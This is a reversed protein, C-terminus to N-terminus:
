VLLKTSTEIKRRSKGLKEHLKWGQLYRSDRCYLQQKTCCGGETSHCSPWTWSCRSPCTNGACGHWQCPEKAPPKKNKPSHLMDAATPSSGLTERLCLSCLSPTQPPTSGHTKFCIILWPRFYGVTKEKHVIWPQLLVRSLGRVWRELQEWRM